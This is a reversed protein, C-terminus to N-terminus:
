ILPISKPTIVRSLAPVIKKPFGKTAARIDTSDPVAIIVSPTKLISFIIRLYLTNIQRLLCPAKQRFRSLVDLSPIQKKNRLGSFSRWAQNHKLDDRLQRFSIIRKLCALSHLRYLQSPKFFSYPGREPASFLLEQDIKKDPIIASIKKLLPEMNGGNLCPCLTLVPM